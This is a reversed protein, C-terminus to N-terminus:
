LKFDELLKELKEVRELSHTYVTVMYGNNGLAMENKAYQYCQMADALHVVLAEVSQTAYEEFAEVFPRSFDQIAQSEATKLAFKVAPFRDKMEHSVDDVISEPIDHAIAIQLARGVDFAYKNSYEMVLAAVFFSHEAVSEDRVRPVNSYRTIYALRYTKEYFDNTM